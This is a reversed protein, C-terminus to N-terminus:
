TCRCSKEADCLRSTINGDGVVNAADNDNAAVEQRGLCDHFNGFSPDVGIKMPSVNMM